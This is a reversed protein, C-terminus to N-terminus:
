EAGTNNFPSLSDTPDLYAGNPYLSADVWGSDNFYSDSNWGAPLGGTPLVPYDGRGTGFYFVKTDTDSVVDQTVESAWLTM